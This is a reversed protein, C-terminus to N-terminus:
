MLLARDRNGMAIGLHGPFWHRGGHMGIDPKKVGGHRNKVGPAVPLGDDHEARGARHICDLAPRPDVPNMGRAILACDNAVVGFPIVLGGGGSGGALRKETGGPNRAGRRAARNIDVEVGLHLFCFERLRERRDLDRPEHRRGTRRSGGLEDLVRSCNELGGLMWDHQHAPHRPADLRPVFAHRKCLREIGLHDAIEFDAAAKGGIMREMRARRGGVRHHGLRNRRDFRRVHDKREIPDVEAAGQAIREALLPRLRLDDTDAGVEVDM